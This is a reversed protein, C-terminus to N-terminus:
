RAAFVERTSSPVQTVFGRVRSAVTSALAKAVMRWISPPRRMMQPIPFPSLETRSM